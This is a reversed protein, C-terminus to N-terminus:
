RGSSSVFKVAYTDRQGRAILTYLGPALDARIGSTVNSAAEGKWVTQGLQNVIIVALDEKMATHVLVSFEGSNPNPFLEVSGAPAIIINDSLVSDCQAKTYIHINKTVATPGCLNSITYSITVTGGTFGTVVGGGSIGAIATSSSSWIGGPLSGTFTGPTGICVYDPGSVTFVPITDTTIAYTRICGAASTYTVTASGYALGTVVGSTAGISAVSANSSSWTGGATACALTMTAGRCVGAPGTIAAPLPNVTAVVTTFCGGTLMYSISATGASVGSLLGVASVTVVSLNSSAWTGSPSADALASTNGVCLAATGTIAAPVPNVLVPM